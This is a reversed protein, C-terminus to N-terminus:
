YGMKLQKGEHKCNRGASKRERTVEYTRYKIQCRNQILVIQKM